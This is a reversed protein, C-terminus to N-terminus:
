ATRYQSINIEPMTVLSDQQSDTTIDSDPPLGGEHNLDHVRMQALRSLSLPGSKFQQNFLNAKTKTESHLIGDHKLPHLAKSIM